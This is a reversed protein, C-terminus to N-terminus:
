EKKKLFHRNKENTKTNSFETYNFIKSYFISVKVEKM